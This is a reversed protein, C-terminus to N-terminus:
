DNGVLITWGMSVDSGYTLHGTAVPLGSARLMHTVDMLQSENLCAAQMSRLRSVEDALHRELGSSRAAAEDGTPPISRLQEVIKRAVTQLVPADPRSAIEDMLVSAASNFAHRAAEAEPDYALAARKAPTTAGVMSTLLRSTARLVFSEEILWQCARLQHETTDAIISGASHVIMAARGRDGIVRLVERAAEQRPAYEFAFQACALAVAGDEFPLSTMSTRPHFTTGAHLSSGDPIHRAPDIDATDVGHLDLDLGNTSAYSRALLTLAGNGTGLDVM